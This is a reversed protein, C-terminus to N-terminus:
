CQKLDEFLQLEKIFQRLLLGVVKKLFETANNSDKLCQLSSSSFDAGGGHAIGSRYAYLADWVKKVSTNGFYSEYDLPEEFRNAMLPIKNRMQHTISDYNLKPQPAHTLMMEIIAFLGIVIFQSNPSLARLEDYMRLARYIEDRFRQESIGSYQNSLSELQNLDQQSFESTLKIRNSFHFINNIHSPNSISGEGQFRVASCILPLDCANSLLDLKMLADGNGNEEIVYYRWESPELSNFGYECNAIDKVVIDTEYIFDIEPIGSFFRSNLFSKFRNIEDATALRIHLDPTFHHPLTATIRVKQLIHSVTKIRIEASQNLTDVADAAKKSKNSM